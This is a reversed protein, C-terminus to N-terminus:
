RIKNLYEAEKRKMEENTAALEEMNQRMEEEQAHLQQTQSQMQEVLTKMKQTSRVTSIAAAMYETAKEAFNRQYEQWDIFGAVEFVGEIKENYKMPVILVHTPTAEGLGSTIHTYGSPVDKLVLTSGELFTQGILGHGIDIKKEVFKKKDFAYVATLELFQNGELDEQLVFSGGQQAELYKVIFRTAQDTLTQVDDQHQRIIETFKAIGETTWNRKKDEEQLRKMQDRMNILIASLNEKNLTTNKEDMGPWHTAFNGSTIKKIFDSANKINEISSSLIVAAEKSVDTGPDFVYKRNNQELNMLLAQRDKAEQRIRFFIVLLSPVGILALLVSIISNTTVAGQYQNVAEAKKADLLPVLQAELKSYEQWVKYGRDEIMLAKFEKMSDVRAVEVMHNCFTIYEQIAKKYGEFKDAPLNNAKVTELVVNLLRPNKEVEDNFPKLLGDTKGIAFGRVGLDMTQLNNLLTHVDVVGKEADKITQDTEAIVRQNHWAYISSVVILVAVIVISVYVANKKLLAIVKNM